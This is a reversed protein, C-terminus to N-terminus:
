SRSWSQCTRDNLVTFLSVSVLWHKSTLRTRDIELDDMLSERLPELIFSLVPIEDAKSM